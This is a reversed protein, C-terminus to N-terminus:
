KWKWGSIYTNNILSWNDDSCLMNETEKYIDKELIQMIGKKPDIYSVAMDISSHLTSLYKSNDDTKRLLGIILPCTAIITTLPLNDRSVLPHDLKKIFNQSSTLPNTRNITQNTSKDKNAYNLLHHELEEVLFANIVCLTFLEMLSATGIKGRQSNSVKELSFYLRTWIKGILISSPSVHIKLGNIDNLWKAITTCLESLQPNNLSESDDPEDSDDANNNFTSKSIDDEIISSESIWEPCSISLSPYSKSLVSLIDHNNNGKPDLSLLREILGLINFISAYTRSSFGSVDVLSLAFIPFSTKNVLCQNIAQSATRYGQAEHSPINHPKKKNLGIVGFSVVPSKPTASYNSTLVATAHRAWNLANEKRGIGMYRKFQRKLDNTDRIKSNKQQLVQGYLAVSGPGGFMYQILIDPKDKCFITVDASLAAFNNRLGLESPQPRLYAATDMDGELVALNFVAEILAPLEHAAIADVDVGFKYLSGLAMARLSESLAETLKTNFISDNISDTDAETPSISEACRSLVQLVSRLPQKLLFESYLAIDQPNKIRLGSKVLYNVVVETTIPKKWTRYMLKYSIVKGNTQSTKELLNWLPRLQVRRRIPFLKLLYQDELHDIMRTYQEERGKDHTYKTRGLNGHFHDRVLLSYLEMDGTVFIILQPTDLYKRICELVRLAHEANTDADDFALTLADVKLLGCATDILKHLNKRLDASHGARELGWDLFLDADLDQLPNHDTAFLNLGGALKKFDNRFDAAHKEDELRYSQRTNEEIRRKLAKLVALLIIETNETRSPDIYALKGIEQGLDTKSDSPLSQYVSQLFTSKGAGRTGDIFYVLGSGPPHEGSKNDLASFKELDHHIQDKLKEYCNRQILEGATVTRNIDSHDLNITIFPQSKQTSNAPTSM